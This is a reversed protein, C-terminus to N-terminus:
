KRKIILKENSSFYIRPYVNGFGHETKSYAVYEEDVSSINDLELLIVSSSNLYSMKKVHLLYEKIKTGKNYYLLKCIGSVSVQFDTIQIQKSKQGSSFSEVYINSIPIIGKLMKIITVMDEYIMENPASSEIIKKSHEDYMLQTVLENSLLECEREDLIKRQLELYEICKQISIRKGMEEFTSEEM